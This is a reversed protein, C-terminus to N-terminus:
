KQTHQTIWDGIVKLAAPAFTEEITGYENPGGTNATQFLHNLGPLEKVTVDPNAATKLAAATAALNRIAPVQLDKSGGIALVPCHVQALTQAPRDALLARYDPSTAAALQPELQANL